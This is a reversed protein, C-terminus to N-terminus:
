AHPADITTGIRGYEEKPPSRLLAIVFLILTVLLFAGFILWPLKQYKPDLTPKKEEKKEEKKEGAAAAPAPAAAVAPATEPAHAPAPGPSPAQMPAAVQVPAAAASPLTMAPVAAAAPIPTPAPTMAPPPNSRRPPPGPPRKSPTELRKAIDAVSMLPTWQSEGVAAVQADRSLQQAQVLKVLADVDHPGTPQGNAGLVYFNSM